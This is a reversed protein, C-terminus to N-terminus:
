RKLRREGKMKEMGRMEEGGGREREQEHNERKCKM